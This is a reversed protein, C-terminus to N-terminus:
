RLRWGPLARVTLGSARLARLHDGRDIFTVDEGARALVGGVVGGVGGAGVVAVRV